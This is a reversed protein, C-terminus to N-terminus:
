PRRATLVFFEILRDPDDYVAGYPHVAFRDQWSVVDDFGAANLWARAEQEAVGCANPMAGTLEAMGPDPTRRWLGDSVLVRGGPRLLRAALVLAAAPNELTWLVNRLTILDAGGKPLDIKDMDSHLFNVQVGRSQAAQRAQALMRGSGDAATVEHGLEALLVACAGTGCGLDIVRLPTDGVAERLVNRWAERHRNHSAAGEFRHAKGNWHAAMAAATTPAVSM